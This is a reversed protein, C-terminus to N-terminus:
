SGHKLIKGMRLILGRKRGVFIDSDSRSQRMSANIRRIGSRANDMKQQAICCIGWIPILGSLLRRHMTKMGLYKMLTSRWPNSEKRRKIEQLSTQRDITRNDKMKLLVSCSVGDTRIMHAFSMKKAKFPKQDTNFIIAWLANKIDDTLFPMREVQANEGELLADAKRKRRTANARNRRARIRDVADHFVDMLTSSDMTVHKPILSTRLPLISLLKDGNEEMKKTM